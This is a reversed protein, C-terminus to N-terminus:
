AYLRPTGDPSLSILIRPKDAADRPTNHIACNLILSGIRPESNAAPVLGKSRFWMVVISLSLLMFLAVGLVAFWIVHVDTVQKEDNESVVKVNMERFDAGYLIDIVPPLAFSHVTLLAGSAWETQTVDINKAQICRAFRGPRAKNQHVDKSNNGLHLHEGDGGISKCMQGVLQGSEDPLEVLAWCFIQDM